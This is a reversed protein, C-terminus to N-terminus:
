KRVFGYKSIFFTILEDFTEYMVINNNNMNNQLIRERSKTVQIKSEENDCKGIINSLLNLTPIFIKQIAVKLYEALKKNQSLVIFHANKFSKFMAVLEALILPFMNAMSALDNIDYSKIIDHLNNNIALEDIDIIMYERKANGVESSPRYYENIKKLLSTKGGAAPIVYFDIRKRLKDISNTFLKKM